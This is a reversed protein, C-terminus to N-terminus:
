WRRSFNLAYTADRGDPGDLRQLTMTTRNSLWLPIGVAMLAASGISAYLMGRTFGDMDGGTDLANFLFYMPLFTVVGSIGFISLGFGLGYLGSSGPDVDLVYNGPMLNMRDSAATIKRGHIMLTNLGAPLRVECPAACLDEWTAGHAMGGPGSAMMQQTVRSIIVERDRTTNVEIVVDESAM